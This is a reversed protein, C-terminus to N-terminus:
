SLVSAPWHTPLCHGQEFGRSLGLGPYNRNYGMSIQKAKSSELFGKPWCTLADAIARTWKGTKKNFEAFTVDDIVAYDLRAAQLQAGSLNAGPLEATALNAGILNDNQLNANGLQAGRLDADNFDVTTLNANTLGADELQKGSLNLGQLPYTPTLGPIDSAVQVDARWVAEAASATLLQQLLLVALAAVAGTLVGASLSGLLAARNAKAANAQAHGGGHAQVPATSLGAWRWAWVLLVGGLVLLGGALAELAYM